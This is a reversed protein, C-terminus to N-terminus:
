KIFAPHTDQCIKHKAINTSRFNIKFEQEACVFTMATGYAINILQIFAWSAAVFPTLLREKDFSGVTGLAFFFYLAAVWIM